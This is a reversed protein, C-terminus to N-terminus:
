SPISWAARISVLPANRSGHPSGLTHSAPAPVTETPEETSALFRAHTDPIILSSDACFWSAMPRSASRGAAADVAVIFLEEHSPKRRKKMPESSQRVPKARAAFSGEGFRPVALPAGSVGAAASCLCYEWAGNRGRDAGWTHSRRGRWQRECRDVDIVNRQEFGWKPQIMRSAVHRKKGIDLQSCQAKDFM